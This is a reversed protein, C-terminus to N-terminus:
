PSLTSPHNAKSSSASPESRDEHTDISGGRNQSVAAYDGRPPRPPYPTYRKSPDLHDNRIPHLPSEKSQPSRDNKRPTLASFASIHSGCLVQNDMREVIRNINSGPVFGLTGLSPDVSDFRGYIVSGFKLGFDELIKVTVGNNLGSLFVQDIPSISSDESAKSPKGTSPTGSLSSRRHSTSPGEDGDSQEKRGPPTLSKSDVPKMSDIRWGQRYSPEVTIRRGLFMSLMPRFEENQRIM